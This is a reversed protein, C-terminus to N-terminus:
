FNSKKERVFLILIASLLGCVALALWAFQFSGTKDVIYGFVPPGSLSGLAITMGVFGSVFGTSEAGAIEGVQTFLIGAFGLASAGILIMILYLLWTHGSLGTGLMLCAIGSIVAMILLVPKRRRGFWRDSIIGSLPKGIGGAVQTIALLSGAALLSFELGENLYLIINTISSFEVVSLFYGSFALIWIDRSKLLTRVGSRGGPKTQKEARVPRNGIVPPDRYILACILCIVILAIGLILYGSQWSWTLAIVPLLLAVIIGAVNVAAQNVGMVTAREGAPFWTMLAKSVAPFICGYGIGAIALVITLGRFSPFLYIFSVAIGAFVSGGYLVPRVGLRDVLWGAVLLIPTYLITNATAVLGVQVNSLQLSEKLFPAVPGISLREMNSVLYVLWIIAMIIWRYRSAQSTPQM